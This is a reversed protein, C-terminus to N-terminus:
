GNWGKHEYYWTMCDEYRNVTAYPGPGGALIAAKCLAWNARVVDKDEEEEEEKDKYLFCNPMPYEIYLPEYGCMEKFEAFTDCGAYTVGLAKKMAANEAELKEIKGAWEVLKEKHEYKVVESLALLTRDDNM